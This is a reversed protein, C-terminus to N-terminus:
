GNNITKLSYKLKNDWKITYLYNDISTNIIYVTYITYTVNTTHIIHSIDITYM